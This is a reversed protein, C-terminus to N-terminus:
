EAMIYNRPNNANLEMIRHELYDRKEKISDKMEQIMKKNKNITQTMSLFVANMWQKETTLKKQTKNTLEVIQKNSVKVDKDIEAVIKFPDDKMKRKPSFAAGTTPRSTGFNVMEDDPEKKLANYKDQAVAIKSTLSKM